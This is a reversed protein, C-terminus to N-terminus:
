STTEIYLYAGCDVTTIKGDRCSPIDEDADTRPQLRPELQTSEEETQLGMENSRCKSEQGEPINKVKDEYRRRRNKRAPPTYTMHTMGEILDFNYQEVWLRNAREEPDEWESDESDSMDDSDWEMYEIRGECHCGPIRCGSFQEVQSEEEDASFDALDGIDSNRDDTGSSM